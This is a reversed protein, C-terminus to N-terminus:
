RTKYGAIKEINTTGGERSFRYGNEILTIITIMVNDCDSIKIPYGASKASCTACENM